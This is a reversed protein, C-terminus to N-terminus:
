EALRLATLICKGLKNRCPEWSQAISSRCSPQWLLNFTMMMMMDDTRPGQDKTGHDKTGTGTTGPGGDRTGPGRGQDGTGRAGPLGRNGAGRSGPGLRNGLGGYDGDDTAISSMGGPGRGRSGRDGNGYSRPGKDKTKPGQDRTDPGQDTTRPRQDNTCQGM